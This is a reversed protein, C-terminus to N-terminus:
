EIPDGRRSLTKKAESIIFEALFTVRPDSYDGDLVSLAAIFFTPLLSLLQRSEIPLKCFLDFFINVCKEMGGNLDQPILLSINCLPDRFLKRVRIRIKIKENEFNEM